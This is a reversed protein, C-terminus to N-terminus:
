NNPPAIGLTFTVTVPVIFAGSMCPDAIAAATSSVASFTPLLPPSTVTYNPCKTAVVNNACASGSASIQMTAGATTGCFVQVNVVFTLPGSVVLQYVTTSLTFGGCTITGCPTSFTAGTPVNLTATTPVVNATIMNSAATTGATTIGTVCVSTTLTSGDGVFTVGSPISVSTCVSFTTGCVWPDMYGPPDVPTGGASSYYSAQPPPTSKLEVQPMGLRAIPPPAAMVTPPPASYPTSRVFFAQPAQPQRISKYSITAPSARM